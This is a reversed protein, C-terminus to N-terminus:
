EIENEEKFLPFNKDKKSITLNNKIEWYFNFHPDNWRIGRESEQHYEGSTFYMVFVNNTLSLYGHACGAPIYLLTMSGEFRAPNMPTSIITHYTPSGKRLDLVVYQIFGQLCMVMKIEEHPSIQYHLGRITGKKITKVINIENINFDISPSTWKLQKRCFLQTFFGREDERYDESKLAYCQKIKTEHFRM